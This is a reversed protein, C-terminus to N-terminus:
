SGLKEDWRLKKVVQGKMSIEKVFLMHSVYSKM